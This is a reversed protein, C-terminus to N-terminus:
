YEEQQDVLLYIEVASIQKEALFGRILSFVIREKIRDGLM